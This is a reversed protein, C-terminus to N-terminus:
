KMIVMSMWCLFLLLRVFIRLVMLLRICLCRFSYLLIWMSEVLFCKDVYIRLSSGKLVVLMIRKMLGFKMFISYVFGIFRFIILRVSNLM